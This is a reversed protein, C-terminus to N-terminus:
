NILQKDLNANKPTVHHTGVGYVWREGEMKIDMQRKMEMSRATGQIDSTEPMWNIWHQNGQTTNM